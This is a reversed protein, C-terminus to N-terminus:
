CFGLGLSEDLLVDGVLLSIAAGRGLEDVGVTVVALDDESNAAEVKDIVLHCCVRSAEVGDIFPVVRM